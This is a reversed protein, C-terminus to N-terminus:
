DLLERASSGFMKFLSDDKVMGKSEQESGLLEKSMFNSITGKMDGGEEVQIM